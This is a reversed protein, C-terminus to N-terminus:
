FISAGEMEVTFSGDQAAVIEPDTTVTMQDFAKAFGVRNDAALVANTGIGTQMLEFEKINAVTSRLDFSCYSKQTKVDQTIVVDTSDGGASTIDVTREGAGSKYKFSDPVIALTNNNVTISPTALGLITAM